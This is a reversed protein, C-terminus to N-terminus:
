TKIEGEFVETAPGTMYVRKNDEWEVLLDGGELHVTVKKGTLGKLNSAV